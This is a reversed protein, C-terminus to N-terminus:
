IGFTLFREGEVKKFDKPLSPKKSESVGFVLQADLEWDEPLGWQATVKQNVIPNYHQLNAGFGEAELATWLVFEHMADTQEAWHGFKDAYQPYAEEQQKISPRHTFFLIQHAYWNANTDERASPLSSFPPSVSGYAAKFGDLKQSTPEFKDAPVVGRLADRVIEWFKDHEDKLLLVVRTSQVNFSSPVHLITEKIIEQIRSDPIPSEKKLDYYTRRQKIVELFQTSAM